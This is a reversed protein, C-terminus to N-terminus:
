LITCPGTVMTIANLVRADVRAEMFSQQYQALGVDSLWDVLFFLFGCLTYFGEWHTHTHSLSLSLFLSVSLCFSLSLCLHVSLCVSLSVFLSLCLSVSICLSVSLCVFLCLSLFVSVFLHHLYECEQEGSVWHHDLPALPSPIEAMEDEVALQLKKCHLINTM